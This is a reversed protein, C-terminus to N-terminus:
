LCSKAKGHWAGLVAGRPGVHNALTTNDSGERSM